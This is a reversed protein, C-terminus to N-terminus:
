IGTASARNEGMPSRVSQCIPSVSMLICTRTLASDSLSSSLLCLLCRPPIHQRSIQAPTVVHWQGAKKRKEKQGRRSGLGGRNTTFMNTANMEHQMIHVLHIRVDDYASYKLWKWVAHHSAAKRALVMGNRLRSWHEWENIVHTDGALLFRTTKICTNKYGPWAPLNPITPRKVIQSATVHKRQRGNAIWYRHNPSPEPCPTDFHGCLSLDGSSEHKTLFLM